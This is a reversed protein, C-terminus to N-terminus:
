GGRGTHTVVAAPRCGGGGGAGRARACWDVEEHYAFLTEDLLGVAALADRRMWMACGAIWDVDRAASWAPGDPEGAGRLAVLSQRWTVEGWALWLRSPDDRALVKPGVAAIRQDAGLAQCAAATAGPRVRAANNRVLVVGAGGRVRPPDAAGDGGVHLAGRPGARGRRARRADRARRHPARARGRAPGPGLARGARGRRRGGRPRRQDRGRGGRLREGDGRVGDRRLGRVGVRQRRHRGGRLPRAARAGAAARA